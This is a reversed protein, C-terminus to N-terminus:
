GKLMKPELISMQMVPIGLEKLIDPYKKLSHYCVVALERVEKLLKNFIKRRREIATSAEMEEKRYNLKQAQADVLMRRGSDLEEHGINYRTKMTQVLDKDQSVKDYVSITQTLWEMPDEPQIEVLGLASMKDPDDWIILKIFDVHMEVVSAAEKIMEQFITMAHKQEGLEKAVINDAEVAGNLSAKIRDLKRDDYNHNMIHQKVFDRQAVGYIIRRCDTLFSEEITKPIKM